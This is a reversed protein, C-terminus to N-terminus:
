WGGRTYILGLILAGLAFRYMAYIGYGTRSIFRLLVSIALWGFVAATLVGVILPVSVGAEAIAHPVKVLAAVLFGPITSLVVWLFFQQYGITDQLWGSFMGLQARQTNIIDYAMTRVEPDDTRDRVLFALEVAQAHHVSMDRAFGAEPSTDGPETEGGLLIGLVAGLVLAAVAAVATTVLKM